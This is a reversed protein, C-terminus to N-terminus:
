EGQGASASQVPPHAASYFPLLLWNKVQHLRGCDICDSPCNGQCHAILYELQDVLVRQVPTNALYCRSGSLAPQNTSLNRKATGRRARESSM